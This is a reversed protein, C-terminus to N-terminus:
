SVRILVFSKGPMRGTVTVAEASAYARLIRQHWGLDDPHLVFLLERSAPPLRSEELLLHTTAWDADGLAFGVNRADLWFPYGVTYTDAAGFGAAEVARAVDTTNPVWTDYQNRYGEFFRHYNAVAAAPVAVMVLAAAAAAALRRPRTAPVRECLRWLHAFALGAVAFVVPMVPALRTPNPNEIPFALNLASSLLLVPAALLVFLAGPDRRVALAGLVLLGALFAGGSVPDLFSDWRIANVEINAGRWNFALAANWLNEVLQAVGGAVNGSDRVRSDVRAFVRDPHDVTYRLLPLCTLAATAVLIGADALVGAARRSTSGTLRPALWALALALPVVLPIVRFATYGQLGVGMAVGCGIAARREGTRIYRALLWLVLARPLRQM